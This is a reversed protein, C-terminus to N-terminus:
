ELLTKKRALDILRNDVGHNSGVYRPKQTRTEVSQAVSSNNCIGVNKTTFFHIVIIIYKLGLELRIM